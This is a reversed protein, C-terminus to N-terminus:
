CRYLRDKEFHLLNVNPLRIADRSQGDQAHVPESTWDWGIM